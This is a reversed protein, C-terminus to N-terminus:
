TSLLEIDVGDAGPYLRAMASSSDTPSRCRPVTTM